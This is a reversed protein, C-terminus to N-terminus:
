SAGARLPVTGMQDILVAAKNSDVDPSFYNGQAYDCKMDRLRDLHAAKEVGEAIVELDLKHALDIISSAIDWDEEFTFTRDLKIYDVPFHRLYSLSSYGTGFDDISMRVGMDKLKNLALITESDEEMLSKETFELNLNTPNLASEALIEQINEILARNSIHRSSLNVSVWIPAGTSFCKQWQKLQRSAARLVFMDIDFIFQTQEALSIFDGAAILSGHSQQWRVLAEFGVINSKEISVIPQYHVRFEEKELAQSLKADLNLRAISRDRMGQNFVATGARGKEKARYMATEANRLLDIPKEHGFTSLSIGMGANLNVQRGNLTIPKSIIKHLASAFKLAEEETRIGHLLIAFEDSGMRALSDQERLFGNLRRALLVLAEDGLPYGYFDNVLKFDDLDLSIMAFAFDPERAAREAAKELYSIFLSQNPLVTLSDYLASKLLEAEINKRQIALALQHSIGIALEMEMETFPIATVNSKDMYLIAAVTKDIQVPVCLATSVKQLLGTRGLREHKEPGQILVVQQQEMAPGAITRPIGLGKIRDFNQALVIICRDVGLVLKTLETVQSIASELDAVTNLNEAIENLLITHRDISHLVLESTLPRTRMRSKEEIPKTKIGRLHLEFVEGGVRIQDDTELVHALNILKGNLFTGNKSKLDRLTLVQNESSFNIECHFRSALPDKILITNAAGRGLSTIGPKLDYVSIGDQTSRSVLSWM